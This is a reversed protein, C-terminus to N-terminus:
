NSKNANYTEVWHRIKTIAQILFSSNHPNGFHFLLTARIYNPNVPMNAHFTRYGYFFYINGEKLECLHKEINQLAIFAFIKQAFYNQLLVKEIINFISYTRIERKNKFVLLHGSEDFQGKPILIPILATIVTADYHFKFSQSETKKGTIVRLVNLIESGSVDKETGLKALQVLFNKLNLSKDLLSLKLETNKYPNILSFYKNGKTNLLSLVEDQFDKITESDLANDLCYFGNNKLQTTIEDLKNKKPIVNIIELDPAINRNMIM